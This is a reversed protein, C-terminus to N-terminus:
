LKCWGPIKKMKTHQKPSLILAIKKIKAKMPPTIM